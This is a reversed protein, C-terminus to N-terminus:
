CCDGVFEFGPPHWPRPPHPALVFALRWATIVIRGILFLFTPMSRGKHTHISDSKGAVIRGTEVWKQVTNELMQCVGSGKTDSVKCQSRYTRRIERSVLKQKAIM